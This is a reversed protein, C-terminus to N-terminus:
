AHGKTDELTQTIGKGKGGAGAFRKPNFPRKKPSPEKRGGKQIGKEKGSPTSSGM